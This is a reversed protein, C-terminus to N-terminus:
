KFYNRQYKKANSIIKLTKLYKNSYNRQHKKAGLTIKLFLTIKVRLLSKKKKVQNM